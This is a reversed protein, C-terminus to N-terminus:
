KLWGTARQTTHQAYSMNSATTAASRPSNEETHRDATQAYKTLGAGYETFRSQLQASVSSTCKDRLHANWTYESYRDVLVLWSKVIADYLDSGLENMHLLADSLLTEKMKPRAQTLRDKQCTSCKKVVSELLTRM